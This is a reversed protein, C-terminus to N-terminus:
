LIIFKRKFSILYLRNISTMWDSLTSCSRKIHLRIVPSSQVDTPRTLYLGKPLTSHLHRPQVRVPLSFQSTSLYHYADTTKINNATVSFLQFPALFELLGTHTHSLSLAPQRAKRTLTHSIKLKNGRQSATSSCKHTESVFELAVVEVARACAFLNGSVVLSM